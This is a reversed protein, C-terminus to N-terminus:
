AADVEAQLAAEDTAQATEAATGATLGDVIAQAAASQEATFPEGPAPLNAIFDRVTTALADFAARDAARAAEHADAQAAIAALADDVTAFSQTMTQELNAIQASVDPGLHLHLDGAIHLHIETVAGGSIAFARAEPRPGPM